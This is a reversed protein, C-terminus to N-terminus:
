IRRSVKARRPQTNRRPRQPQAKTEVSTKKPRAKKKVLTLDYADRLLGAIETWNVRGELKAGVWGSPGVYPPLFYRKPNSGIIFGQNVPTAKIWVSDVDAHHTGSSAFMAFLKNNVRFTPEGWAEVEHADPLQRVIKRLRAIPSPPVGM